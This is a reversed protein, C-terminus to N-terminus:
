VSLGGRPPRESILGSTKILSRNRVSKKRRRRALVGIGAIGSAFLWVAGPIPTPTLQATVFSLAGVYFGPNNPGDQQFDFDQGTLNAVLLLANNAGALTAFWHPIFTTRL